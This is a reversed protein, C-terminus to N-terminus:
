KQALKAVLQGHDRQHITIGSDDPRYAARPRHGAQDFQRHPREIAVVNKGDDDPLIMNGEHGIRPEIRVAVLVGDREGANAALNDQREPTLLNQARELHCRALRQIKRSEIQARQNRQGNVGRPGQGSQPLDLLDPPQVLGQFLVSGLQNAGLGRQALLGLDKLGDQSAHAVAHDNGIAVSTEQDEVRGSLPDYPEAPHVGRRAFPRPPVLDVQGIPDSGIRDRIQRQHSCDATFRDVLGLEIDGVRAAVVSGPNQDGATRQAIFLAVKLSSHDDKVVDRPPLTGLPHQRGLVLGRPHQGLGLRGTLGIGLNEFGDTLAQVPVQSCEPSDIGVCM